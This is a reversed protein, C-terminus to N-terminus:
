GTWLLGRSECCWVKRHEKWCLRTLMSFFEKRTFTRRERRELTKRTSARWSGCIKSIWSRTRTSWSSGRWVRRAGYGRTSTRATSWVSYSSTTGRLTRRPGKRREKRMSSGTASCWHWSDRGARSSHRCLRTSWSSRVSWRQLTWTRRYCSEAENTFEWSQKLLSRTGSRRRLWRQKAKSKLVLPYCASSIFSSSSPKKKVQSIYDSIRKRSSSWTRSTRRMSERM